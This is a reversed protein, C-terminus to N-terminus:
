DRLLTDTSGRNTIAVWVEEHAIHLFTGHNVSRDPLTLKSSGHPLHCRVCLRIYRWRTGSNAPTSRRPFNQINRKGLVEPDWTDTIDQEAHATSKFVLTLTSSVSTAILTYLRFKVGIAM